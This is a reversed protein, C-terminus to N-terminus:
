NVLLFIQITYNQASYSLVVFMNFNNIKNNKKPKLKGQWKIKLLEICFNDRRLKTM